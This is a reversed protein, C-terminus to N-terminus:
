AKLGELYELLDGAQQQSLVSLDGAWKWGPVAAAIVEARASRPLLLNRAMLQGIIAVRQDETLSAPRQSVVDVQCDECLGSPDDTWIQRCGRCPQEAVASRM